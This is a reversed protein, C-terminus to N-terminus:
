QFLLNRDHIVMTATNFLYFFFMKINIKTLDDPFLVKKELICVHEGQVTIREDEEKRRKDIPIPEKQTKRECRRYYVDAPVADNLNLLNISVKRM